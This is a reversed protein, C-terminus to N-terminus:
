IWPFELPTQHMVSVRRWGAKMPRRGTFSLQATSPSVWCRGWWALCSRKVWAAPARKTLCSPSLCCAVTLVFRRPVSSEGTLFCLNECYFCHATTFQLQRIGVSCRCEFLDAQPGCNWGSLLVTRNDNSMEYTTLFVRLLPPLAKQRLSIQQSEGEDLGVVYRSMWGGPSERFGTLMSCGSLLWSLIDQYATLTVIAKHFFTNAVTQKLPSANWIRVMLDCIVCWWKGPFLFVM